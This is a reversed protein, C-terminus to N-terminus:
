GGKKTVNWFFPAPGSLLGDIRDKRVAEYVRMATDDFVPLAVEGARMREDIREALSHTQPM